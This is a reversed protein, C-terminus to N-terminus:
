RNAETFVPLKNEMKGEMFEKALQYFEFGKTSNTAGGPLDDVYLSDLLFQVVQPYDKQHRLLHHQIGGRLIAPSPTLGFVLRCFYYQVIKM